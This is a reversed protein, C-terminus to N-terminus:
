ASTDGARGDDDADGEGDTAETPLDADPGYLAEAFRARVAAWRWREINHRDGWVQEEILPFVNYTWIRELARDSLDTRMFHSPGILLHEGVLDLLEVNVADLFDAVGARGNRDGIWRRLLGKLAGDHPFFPVFHFRRRMAADILAVSRDATNMTAIFWLNEPLRYPQDPRYLTRVSETRYELLFLLEGFVKPLNARNIEDIVMVYRNDPDAAAASAIAMLPGPTLAYTVHGADTVRPRLGEFFDEYTTAPHFQVLAVRADNGTVIAKALRLGLYTKGTGPPGYLVVQRKDELLEIIEDLVVRDVNLEKAALEIHDVPPEVVPFEADGEDVPREAVDVIVGSRWQEFDHWDEETWADPKEEYKVLAWVAGQADLPDRLPVPWGVSDRVLEGFFALARDYLHEATSGAPAKSWGSLMWAKELAAVKVPPLHLPDQGFVLFTAINLREGAAGLTAPPVAGLFRRLRDRIPESGSWLSRLAEAGESRNGDLWKLFRDHAQWATLNNRGSFARKLFEYWDDSGALVHSRAASLHSAVELKYDREAADFDPLERFRRLWRLFAPWAAKDKLWLRMLPDGYWDFDEGYTPTLAGRAKLLRRDLDPDDGAEIRFRGVILDRHPPSVIPEFTDPHAMHLLALRVNDSSPSEVGEAFAKMTWPDEILLEQRDRSLETWALAFRILWALQTDRRTVAWQGPHTIGHEMADAVDEPISTPRPMWSLIAELDSLKKSKSIANTRIFLFHVVHVEAMLQVAEPSSGALQDHLKELFRKDKTDDPQGIFHAVLEELLAPTWIAAGPTLLSDGRALVDELWRRHMEYVADVGSETSRVM